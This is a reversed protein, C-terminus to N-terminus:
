TRPGVQRLIAQMSKANIELGAAVRAALDRIGHPYADGGGAIELARVAMARMDVAFGEANEAALVKAEWQLRSIRDTVREAARAISVVATGSQDAKDSISM